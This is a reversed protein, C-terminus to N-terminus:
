ANVAVPNQTEVTFQSRWCTSSSISGGCELGHNLEEIILDDLTGTATITAM